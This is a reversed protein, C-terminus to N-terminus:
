DAARLSATAATPARPSFAGSPWRSSCKAPSRANTNTRCGPGACRSKPSTSSSKPVLLGRVFAPELHAREMRRQLPELAADFQSTAMVDSTTRARDDSPLADAPFEEDEEEAERRSSRNRNRNQNPSRCASKRTRSTSSWMSSLKLFRSRNRNPETRCGSRTRDRTARTCASGTRAARPAAPALAHARARANRGPVM